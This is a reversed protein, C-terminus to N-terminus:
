HVKSRAFAATAFLAQVDNEHKVTARFVFPDFSSCKNDAPRNSDAAPPFADPDIGHTM